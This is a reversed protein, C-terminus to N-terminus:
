VVDRRTAVITRDHAREERLRRVLTTAEVPSRVIYVPWGDWTKHWAVQKDNLAAKPMKVEVMILFYHFDVQLSVLLDPHGDRGKVISVLCSAARFATVIEKQNGDVSDGSRQRPPM